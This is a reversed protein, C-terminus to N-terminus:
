GDDSVASALKLVTNWNRGTGKTKLRSEIVPLMLPSRAFGNPYTVYAYRGEARIREPGTHAAQLAKVDRPDVESKFFIVALHSPDTKAEEPFPNHAVVREWERPTRLFFLTDLLFHRKVEAELMRELKEASRANSGFVLNGSNLMSRLDELGLNTMLKRLDGMNIKKNGGINVGRLLAIYKAM